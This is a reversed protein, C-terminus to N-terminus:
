SKSFFEVTQVGIEGIKEGHEPIKLNRKWFRSFSAAQLLICLLRNLIGRSSNGLQVRNQKKKSSITSFLGFRSLVQTTGPCACSTATIKLGLTGDLTPYHKDFPFNMEVLNEIAIIYREDSVPCAVAILHLARCYYCCSKVRTVNPCYMHIIQSCRKNSLQQDIDPLCMWFTILSTSFCFHVVNFLLVSQIYQARKSSWKNWSVAPVSLGAHHLVSQLLMRERFSWHPPRYGLWWGWIIYFHTCFTSSICAATKQGKPKQSGSWIWNHPILLLVPILLIWLVVTM